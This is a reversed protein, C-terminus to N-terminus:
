TAAEPDPPLGALGVAPQDPRLPEGGNRVAIESAGVDTSTAGRLSRLPGGLPEAAASDHNDFTYALTAPSPQAAVTV